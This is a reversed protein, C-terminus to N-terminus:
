GLALLSRVTEIESLVKNRSGEYVIRGNVMILARDALQTIQSFRTGQEVVLLSMGRDKMEALMSYIKSAIIPSVGETPEDLLVLKPQMMLARIVAVIKREGGSLTDARRELLEEIQPYVQRALQLDLRKSGVALRLNDAVKIGPILGTYDPVYAIGLSAIKHTPLSTVDRGDFLVKGSKTVEIGMVAKLLTTKGVGNRGLVAVLEGRQVTMDVDFLVQAKDYFASLSRLELIASM